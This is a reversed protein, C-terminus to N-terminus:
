RHDERTLQDALEHDTSDTITLTLWLVGYMHGPEAPHIIPEPKAMFLEPTDDSVMGYGPHKTTNSTLEDPDVNNEDLYNDLTDDSVKVTADELGIKITLIM